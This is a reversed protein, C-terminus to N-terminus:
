VVKTTELRAAETSRKVEMESEEELGSCGRSCVTGAIGRPELNADIKPDSQRNSLM